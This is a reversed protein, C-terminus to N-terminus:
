VSRHHPPVLRPGRGTRFASRMIRATVPRKGLSGQRARSRCGTRLLRRNFETSRCGAPPAPPERGLLGRAAARWQAMARGVAASRLSPGVECLDRGHRLAEDVRGAYLLACALRAQILATGCQDQAPRLRLSRELATVAGPVDGLALLAEARQYEFSTASYTVFAEDTAGQHRLSVLADSLALQVGARDGVAARVVALQAQTYAQIGHQAAAAASVAARASLGAARLHGLRQAQTSVMRVAVAWTAPDDATVSLERATIYCRQAAGHLLQDEYMRGLLLVLRAGEVYEEQTAMGLRRLRGTVVESLYTRLTAPAHAGGQTGLLEAFFQVATSAPQVPRAGPLARAATGHPPQPTLWSSPPAPPLCDRPHYLMANLPVAFLRDLTQGPSPQPGPRARQRVVRVPDTFGLDEPTVTRGIRRGLAECVLPVITAAPRSGRLWHAVTTRDYRLEGGAEAAILNVARALAQQTWGAEALLARLSPNPTKTLPM